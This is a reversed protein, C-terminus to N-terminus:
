IRLLFENARNTWGRLWVLQDPRRKVFTAFGLYRRTLLEKYVQRWQRGDIAGLTIPGVRGDQKTSVVSQLWRGARRRGHLVGTDILLARLEPHKIEGFRPKDVYLWEFIARAEEKTLLRIAERREDATRPVYGGVDRRYEVLAPITVGWRTPGGRDKPHDTFRSGERRLIDGVVDLPVALDGM